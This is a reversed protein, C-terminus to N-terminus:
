LPVPAGVPHFQSSDKRNVEPTNVPKSAAPCTASSVFFALTVAALPIKQDHKILATRPVGTIKRYKTQETHTKAVQAYVM